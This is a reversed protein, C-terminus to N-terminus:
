DKGRAAGGALPAAGRWRPQAVAVVPPARGAGRRGVPTGWTHAASALWPLSRWYLERAVGM